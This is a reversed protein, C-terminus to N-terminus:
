DVTVKKCDKCHWDYISKWEGNTSGCWKCKMKAEKKLAIEFNYRIEELLLSEDSYLVSILAFAECPKNTCTNVCKKCINYLNDKGM